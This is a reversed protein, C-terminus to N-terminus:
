CAFIMGVGRPLPREVAPPRAPSIRGAAGSKVQDFEREIGRVRALARHSRGPDAAPGHGGAPHRPEHPVVGPPVSRGPGPADAELQAQEAPGLANWYKMVQAHEAAERAQEAKRRRHQEAERQRAQRQAEERRVRDAEAEFGRPAAYDDKISAVLYGAPNRGLRRDKRGGLWDFVELQARIRGAPHQAALGAAATPTV